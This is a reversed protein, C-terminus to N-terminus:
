KQHLLKKALIIFDKSYNKQASTQKIISNLLKEITKEVNWINIGIGIESRM